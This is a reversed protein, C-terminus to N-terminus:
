IYLIAKMKNERAQFIDDHKLIMDVINKINEWYKILLVQGSKGSITGLCYCDWRAREGIVAGRPRKRTGRDGSDNKWNLFSEAKLKKPGLKLACQTM